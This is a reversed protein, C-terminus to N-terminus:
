LEANKKERETKIEFQLFETMALYASNWNTFYGENLCQITRKTIIDEFCPEHYMPLEKQKM